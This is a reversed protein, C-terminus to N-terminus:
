LKVVPHIVSCNMCSKSFVDLAANVIRTRNILIGPKPHIVMPELQCIQKRSAVLDIEFGAVWCNKFGAM